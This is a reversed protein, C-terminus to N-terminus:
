QTLLNFQIFNGANLWKQGSSTAINFQEFFIVYHDTM